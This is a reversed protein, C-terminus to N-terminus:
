SGVADFVLTAAITSADLLRDRTNRISQPRIVLTSYYELVLKAYYFPLSKFKTANKYQLAAM